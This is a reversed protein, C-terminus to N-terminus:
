YSLIISKDSVTNKSKTNTHHKFYEKFNMLIVHNARILKWLCALFLTYTYWHITSLVSFVWIGYATSFSWWNMWIMYSRFASLSINICWILAQQSRIHHTICSTCVEFDWLYLCSIKTQNTNNLAVQDWYPCETDHIVMSQRFKGIVLDSIQGCM